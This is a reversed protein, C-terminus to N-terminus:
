RGATMPCVQQRQRRRPGVHWSASRGHESILREAKLAFARQDERTLKGSLCVETTRAGARGHIEVTM